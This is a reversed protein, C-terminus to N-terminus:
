GRSRRGRRGARKQKKKNTGDFKGEMFSQWEDIRDHFSDLGHRDAVDKLGEIDFNNGGLQPEETDPHPLSVLEINRAYTDMDRNWIADYKKGSTLEGTLYRIVFSEGVGSVGPINDSTCGAIAKVVNWKGEYIGYEERFRKSTMMVNTSPNYMRVNNALVQYLDHDASVIIFDGLKGIVIKAIIDDAELGSQMLVNLFGISPLDIRRLSHFQRYAEEVIEQQEPTKDRRNAKYGPFLARRHSHRSDWCFVLDNTKFLQGLYLIRNLFGFVVGTGVDEHSLEGTTYVAQYGLYNADIVLTPSEDIM